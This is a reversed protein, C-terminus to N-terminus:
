DGSPLHYTLVYAHGGGTVDIALSGRIGSLAGMGSGPAIEVSLDQEGNAMVGRHYLAFSGKRGALEGDFRETAVYVASGDEGMVTLMQGQSTGTLDGTFSKEMLMRGLGPPADEDVAAIEVEFTGSATEASAPLGVSGAAAVLCVGLPIRLSIGGTM